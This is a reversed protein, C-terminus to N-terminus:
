AKGTSRCDQLAEQPVVPERGTHQLVAKQAQQKQANAVAWRNLRKTVTTCGAIHGGAAQERWCGVLAM